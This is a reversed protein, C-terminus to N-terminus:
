KLVQQFVTTTHVSVGAGSNARQPSSSVTPLVPVLYWVALRLMMSVGMAIPVGCIRGLTGILLQFFVCVCM